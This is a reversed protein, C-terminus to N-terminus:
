KRLIYVITDGMKKIKKSTWEGSEVKGRSSYELIVRGGPKLHERCAEFFRLPLELDYPPDALILDYQTKDRDLFTLANAKICKWSDAPAKISQLNEKTLQISRSNMDVFSVHEAYRSLAEIGLAGTGCFLDMVCHGELNQLVNFIYEKVKGTTPRINHKPNAIYLGGYCGSIIRSM